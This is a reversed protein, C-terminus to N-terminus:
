TTLPFTTEFWRHGPDGLPRETGRAPRPRPRPALMRGLTRRRSTTMRMTWTTRTWSRSSTLTTQYKTCKVKARKRKLFSMRTPPKDRDSAKVGRDAEASEDETKDSGKSGRRSGTNHSERGSQDWATEGNKKNEKEDWAIKTGRGVDVAKNAIM